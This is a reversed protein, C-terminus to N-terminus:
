YDQEEVTVGAQAMKLLVDDSLGLKKLDSNSFKNKLNSYRKDVESKEKVTNDGTSLLDEIYNKAYIESTQPKTPDKFIISNRVAEVYKDTDSKVSNIYQAKQKSFDNLSTIADINLKRVFSKSSLAEYAKVIFEIDSMSRNNYLNKNFIIHNLKNAGTGAIDGFDLTNDAYLNNLSICNDESLIYDKNIKYFEPIFKLYPNTTNRFGLEKIWKYLVEKIPEIRTEEDTESWNWDRGSTIILFVKIVENKEDNSKANNYADQFQGNKLQERVSEDSIVSDIYNKLADTMEM